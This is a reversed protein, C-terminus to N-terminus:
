VRVCVCKKDRKRKRGGFFMSLLFGGSHFCACLATEQTSKKRRREEHHDRLKKEKGFPLFLNERVRRRGAMLFRGTMRPTLRRQLKPMARSGDAAFARDSVAFQCSEPPDSAIRFFVFFDLRNKDLLHLQM